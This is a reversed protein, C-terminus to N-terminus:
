PAPQLTIAASFRTMRKAQHLHLILLSSSSGKIFRAPNFEYADPGWLTINYHMPVAPMQVISDKKLLYNNSSSGTIHTDETIWRTTANRTRIRLVEQFTSFLLPCTSKLSQVHLAMTSSEQFYTLTGSSELEERLATLLTPRSFIDFILWFFTPTANILVGICDGIEFCAFDRVSIGYRM